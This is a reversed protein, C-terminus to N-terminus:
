IPRRVYWFAPEMVSSSKLASSRFLSPTTELLSNRAAILDWAMLGPASATAICPPPRSTSASSKPVGAALGRPLPPRGEGDAEGLPSAAAPPEAPPAEGLLELVPPWVGAHGSAVGGGRMFSPESPLMPKASTGAPASGPLGDARPESALLVRADSAASLRLEELAPRGAEALRPEPAPGRRLPPEGNCSCTGAQACRAVSTTRREREVRLLPPLLGAASVAAESAAAAAPM